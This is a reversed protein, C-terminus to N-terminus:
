WRSDLGIYMYWYIQSHMVTIVSSVLRMMVRVSHIFMNIYIDGFIWPILWSLGSCKSINERTKKRQKDNQQIHTVHHWRFVCLSLTHKRQSTRMSCLVLHFVRANRSQLATQWNRVYENLFVSTPSHNQFSGSISKILPSYRKERGTQYFESLPLHQELLTNKRYTIIIIIAKTIKTSKNFTWFNFPGTQNADSRQRGPGPRVAQRFIHPHDLISEDWQCGRPAGMGSSALSQFFGADLRIHTSTGSKAVTCLGLVVM